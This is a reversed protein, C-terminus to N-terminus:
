GWPTVEQAQTAWPKPTLRENALHPLKQLFARARDDIRSDLCDGPVEIVSITTPVRRLVVPLTFGVSSPFCVLHEAVAGACLELELPLAPRVITLGTAQSLRQLKGDDERRHAYYHGTARRGVLETVIGLYSVECVLGTEVLSTGVIDTGPVVDPAGFRTRSWDYGNPQVWLGPVEVTPMVTFLGVSRSASPTFFDRARAAMRSRLGDVIGGQHNSWRTLPRGAALHEAFEVTSAGDDVIVVDRAGACPLMAQVLGSSPDGVVLRRAHRLQRRLAAVAAVSAALSKRPDFWRVTIGAALALSALTRLQSRGHGDKPALVAILTTTSAANAHCWEIAHLLQAPSEVLAVSQRSM